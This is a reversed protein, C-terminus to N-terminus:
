QQAAKETHSKDSSVACRFGFFDSAYYPMSFNRHYTSTSFPDSKWSGGRRVKYVGEMPVLDAVKLGRDEPTLAQVKKPQFTDAPATSGEYPRFDSATWESVNGAMDFVGYPSVGNKYTTVINSAGTNYYTNLRTADMKNGWPWRRGDIGRAAKEWEAETPLRKGEWRCYDEADYWTVMTVPNLIKGDPIQGNAWDLPPRHKTEMVFKAYEAQTVPYKDIQYEPLFVRHQPRNYDDARPSDTGMLFEGAPITVVAELEKWQAPTLLSDLENWAYVKQAKTQSEHDRHRAIDEGAARLHDKMDALDYTARDRMDAMRNSGLKVVHLVGFVVAAAICTIVTAALYRERKQREEATLKAHYQTQM